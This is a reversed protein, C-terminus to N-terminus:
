GRKKSSIEVGVNSDVSDVFHYDTKIVVRGQGELNTEFICGKM